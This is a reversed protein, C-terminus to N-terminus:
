SIGASSAIDSWSYSHGKHTENVIKKLRCHNTITKEQFGNSISSFDGAAVIAIIIQVKAQLFIM